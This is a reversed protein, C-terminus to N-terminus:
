RTFIMEPSNLTAWIVDEMRERWERTLRPTPPDGRRAAAELQIKIESAEPMLHNSWSIYRPPMRKVPVIVPSKVIREAFGPRLHEALSAREDVSLKRTYVRLFLRDVLEEPSQSRLALETIGHEDSLRTLWTGVVGNALLAPQLVNPSVDRDTLPSPRSPRWGFAELVDIVAQVRPLSLSPRDRENSTSAFMWSRHPKGMSISNKIDRAGDVDLSVEETNMPRGVAHFLSDVIQEATLRRPVHAIHYPDADKHMPDAVRQYAHSNLILRALQKMDYGNSAVERGLWTLLEPHTPQGKEWDDVPEVIGVGMLRKWVRNAIVQAFRENRVDTIRQALDDRSKGADAKSTLAFPWAPAVKTGPKLSVTILPKRDKGHIKDIPVSSTVPVALPAENLMAAISFLDKQTSKHGPADHCRACKMQVGLFASAIIVGKEAFPADNQSAMAFGAPGGYSHSGRMRVLETVFLDMPKNDLMAEHIWWRFPGTNNLTPNLINPNEALVDQWYSVWHDAWRPDDLLKDIVRARKDVRVDAIFADIESPTPLVGITDLTARRLFTLDDALGPLPRRKLGAPDYSAGGRIWKRLTDIEIATLGPGQPPMKEMAETAILRAILESKEPQGPVIAPTKSAGGRQASVLDDLRLKGKVKDGQHCSFCKAQLIPKVEAHYDVGGKFKDGLVFADEIKAALFHDIANHAPMGKSLSPVAIPPQKDLWRKAEARRRAWEDGHKAFAKKRREAEIAKLRATEAVEYVKWGADTYAVKMSPAILHFTESGALSIAAVTEGLESRMIGNGRKGGVITELMIRHTKGTSAFTTWRERNGPPAYRFDPGLDLYNTPIPSHGDTLVPVFPTTLLVEGDIWLKTAGRARLLIRHKGAPLTIEASARLLFPISRDARVGTDIYKFPVHFFGFAIADFRETAAPADKPWEQKETLGGECIEVRVKPPDDAFTSTIGFSFICIATLITRM